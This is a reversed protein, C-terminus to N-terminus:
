RRRVRRNGPDADIDPQRVQVPGEFIQYGGVEVVLCLRPYPHPDPEGTLEHVAVQELAGVGCLVRAPQGVQLPHDGGLPYEIRLHGLHRARNGVPVGAREGIYQPQGDRGPM